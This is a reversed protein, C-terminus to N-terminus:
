KLVNTGLLKTKINEVTVAMGSDLLNRHAEYVKAQMSDLYINLSRIEEKTGTARGAHSNWHEQECERQTSLEVRAADITIHM